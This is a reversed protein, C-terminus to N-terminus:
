NLENKDVVPFPLQAVHIGEEALAEAEQRSAVGRISRAPTERYHMRRAEEPFKQGVDETNELVHRILERLQAHEPTLALATAPAPVTAPTAADGATNGASIGAANGATGGAANGVPKGAQQGAEERAQAASASAAAMLNLRPASLQKEIQASGCVPCALLGRSQQATMDALSGFWGEFIHRQECALNFVIVPYTNNYPARLPVQVRM